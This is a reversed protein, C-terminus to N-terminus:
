VAYKVLVQNANGRSKSVRSATLVFNTGLFLKRTSILMWPKSNHVITYSITTMVFQVRSIQLQLM